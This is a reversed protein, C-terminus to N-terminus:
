AERTEVTVIRREHDRLIQRVAGAFYGITATQIMLGVVIAIPISLDGM